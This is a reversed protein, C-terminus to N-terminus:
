GVGADGVVPGLGPDIVADALRRFRNQAFIGEEVPRLEEVAEDHLVHVKRFGLGVQDMFFYGRDAVFLAVQDGLVDIGQVSLGAVAVDGFEVAVEVVDVAALAVLLQGVLIIGLAVPMFAAPDDPWADDKVPFPDVRVVDAIGDIM